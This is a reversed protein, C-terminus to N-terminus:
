TKKQWKDRDNEQNKGHLSNFFVIFQHSGHITESLDLRIIPRYNGLLIRISSRIGSKRNFKLSWFTIFCGFENELLFLDFRNRVLAYNKLSCSTFSPLLIWFIASLSPCCIPNHLSHWYQCFFTKRVIWALFVMRNM